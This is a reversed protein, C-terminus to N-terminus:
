GLGYAGPFRRSLVDVLLAAPLGVVNLYDGEINEVLRAGLGQIAYSGARERWEGSALYATIEAPSLARFKVRTIEHAVEEWEPDGGAGPGLLCLGSVVEHTRGAMRELMAAAEQEGAAKGFLEGGLSVVTDVGLVPREGANAVVSFAKGRAHTEVLEIPEAGPRDHERYRPSVTEFAIGLQTLIARRQPSVSALLLPVPPRIPAPM